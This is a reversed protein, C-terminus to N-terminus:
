KRPLAYAIYGTLGRTPSTNAIRGYRLGVESATVLVYQRGDLEYMAPSGQTPAGLSAAWLEKGTAADLARLKNDGSTVFVLGTATPIVGTKLQLATGTGTIGQGALRLDDGLAIQWRIAGSNLDYSTLTTYPPKVVTPITGYGNITFRSSPGEVGDPYGGGFPPTARGGAGPRVAAPGSAVVPGPPFTSPAASGRGGRGGRAGPAADSSVFQIVADLEEPILQNFAPMRGRGNAVVDRIAPATLRTAVAILSPADNTGARGPGHCAQCDRQYVSM